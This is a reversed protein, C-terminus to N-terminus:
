CIQAMDYTDTSNEFHLILINLVFFNLNDISFAMNFKTETCKAM